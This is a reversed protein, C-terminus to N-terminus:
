PGPFPPANAPLILVQGPYILYPYVLGNASIIWDPHINCKRGISWVWEGAQVTYPSSCVTKTPDPEEEEETPEPTNTPPTNTSTATAVLPNTTTPSPAPESAEIEQPGAALVTQTAFGGATATELQNPLDVQPSGTPQNLEAPAQSASRNCGALGIVALLGLLLLKHKIPM